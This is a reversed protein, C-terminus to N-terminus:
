PSEERVLKKEAVSDFYRKILEEKTALPQENLMNEIQARIEPPLHGWIDKGGPNMHKSPPQLPKQLPAGRAMAGETQGQQQSPQKGQQRVRRM